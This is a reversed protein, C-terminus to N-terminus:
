DKPGPGPPSGEVPKVERSTWSYKEGGAVLRREFRWVVAAARGDIIGQALEEPSVRCDQMHIYRHPQFRDALVKRSSDEGPPSLGREPMLVFEGRLADGAVAKMGRPLLTLVEAYGLHWSHPLRMADGDTAGPYERVRLRVWRQGQETVGEPGDVEAVVEAMPRSKQESSSALTTSVFMFPPHSGAASRQVQEGTVWLPHPRVDPAAPYLRGHEFGWARVRGSLPRREPTMWAEALATRFEAYAAGNWIAASGADDTQGRVCWRAQRTIEARDAPSFRELASAEGRAAPVSEGAPQVGAGGLSLEGWRGGTSWAAWVAACVGLVM